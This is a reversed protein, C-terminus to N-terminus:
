YSTGTLRLLREKASKANEGKPALKLYTKYERVADRTQEERELLVGLNFNAVPLEGGSQLIAKRFANSAGKYDGRERLIIGLMNQAVPNTKKVLAANEISRSFAEAAGNNDGLRRLAMGLNFQAEMFVNNKLLLAKRYYEVARAPQGAGALAYGLNNLIVPDNGQGSRVLAEFSKVAVDWNRKKLAEQGRARLQAFNDQPEPAITVAPAAVGKLRNIRSQTEQQYKAITEYKNSKEFAKIAATKNGLREEILGLHYYSFASNPKLKIATQVHNKADDLRGESLDVVSLGSYAAAFDPSLKIATAYHDRAERLYSDKDNKDAKNGVDRLANALYYHMTPSDKDGTTLCLRWPHIADEPKGTSYLVLGLNSLAPEYLPEISIARKFYHIAKESNERDAYIRGINNYAAPLKPDVRLAAEFARLAEDNKNQRLLESGKALFRQADEKSGGQAQVQPLSLGAIAILCTLALAPLRHNKVARNFLNM